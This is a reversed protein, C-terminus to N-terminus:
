VANVLNNNHHYDAFKYPRKINTIHINKLNLQRYKPENKHRLSKYNKLIGLVELKWM